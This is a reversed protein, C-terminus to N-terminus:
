AAIALDAADDGDAEIREAATEAEADPGAAAARSPEPALTRTLLVVLGGAAYAGLAALPNWFLLLALVIRLYQPSFGLDEGLGQCVGFFTDDRTLLSPQANEM